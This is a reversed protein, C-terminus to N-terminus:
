KKEEVVEEIGSRTRREEVIETGAEVRRLKVRENASMRVPRGRAIDFLTSSSGSQELLEYPPAEGPKAPPAEFTMAVEIRAAVNGMFGELQTFTHDRRVLLELGPELARRELTSWTAGRQYYTPPGPRIAELLSAAVAKDEPKETAKGDRQVEDLQVKGKNADVRGRVVLGLARALERVYASQAARPDSTKSDFSEARGDHDVEVALRTERLEVSFVHDKEALVKVETEREVEYALTSRTEEAKAAKTVRTLTVDGRSRLRVTEGPKYGLVFPVANEPPKKDQAWCTTTVLALALLSRARV